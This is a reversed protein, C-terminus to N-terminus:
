FSPRLLGRQDQIGFNFRQSAAPSDAVVSLHLLWGPVLCDWGLYLRQVGRLPHNQSLRLSGHRGEASNRDENGIQPLDVQCALDSGM